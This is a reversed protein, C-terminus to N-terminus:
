LILTFRKNFSTIRVNLNFKIKLPSFIGQVESLWELQEMSEEGREEEFGLERGGRWVWRLNGWDFIKIFSNKIVWDNLKRM